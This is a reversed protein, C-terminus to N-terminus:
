MGAREMLSRTHKTMTRFGSTPTTHTANAAAANSPLLPIPPSEPAATETSPTSSGSWIMSTTPIRTMVSETLLLTATADLGSEQFSTLRTSPAISEDTNSRSSESAVTPGEDGDLAMAPAEKFVLGPITPSETPHGIHFFETHTTTWKIRSSRTLVSTFVLTRLQQRESNTADQVPIQQTTVKTTLTAPSNISPSVQLDIISPTASITTLQETTQQLTEAGGLDPDTTTDPATQTNAAMQIGVTTQTDIQTQIDLTSADSATQTNFAAEVDLTAEPNLTERTSLTALYNLTTQTDFATQIDATAELNQSTPSKLTTETTASHIGLTSQTGPKTQIGLAVQTAPAHTAMVSSVRRPETISSSVGPACNINRGLNPPGSVQDEDLCSPDITQSPQQGGEAAPIQVQGVSTTESSGSGTVNDPDEVFIGGPLGSPEGNLQGGPLAGTHDTPTNELSVTPQTGPTTNSHLETQGQPQQNATQAAPEDLQGTPQEDFLDTSQGNPQVGPQKGSPVKSESSEEGSQRSLSRTPEQASEVGSPGTGTSGTSDNNSDEGPLETPLSTPKGNSNGPLNSAVADAQDDPQRQGAPGPQGPAGPLDFSNSPLPAAVTNPMNTQGPLNSRMDADSVLPVKSSGSVEGSEPLGTRNPRAPLEAPLNENSPTNSAGSPLQGSEGGLQGVGPQPSEKNGSDPSFMSSVQGQLRNIQDLVDQLAEESVEVM